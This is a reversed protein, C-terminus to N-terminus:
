KSTTLYELPKNNYTDCAEVFEHAAETAKIARHVKVFIAHADSIKLGHADIDIAEFLEVRANALRFQLQVLNNIM